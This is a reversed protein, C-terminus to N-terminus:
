CLHALEPFTNKFNTNRQQDLVTFYEKLDPLLHSHDEADMWDLIGEWRQWGYPNTDWFDDDTNFNDFLWMRLDIFQKRIQAKDEKSLVRLSLWTPIWVLHVGCLGGGVLQGTVTKSKNIKKFKSNVIWKIFDPVHKINLVQVAFAINVQINDPTTDLLKINNEIEKWDSPYRIYELRTGIGDLSFNIKVQKFKSWVEILEKSVLIGNTNYRLTIQKEFGRNVIEKIFKLHEKILLPEGGAFYIQKINPIQEFIEDWFEPREYWTNNFTVENWDLQRKVEESKLIPIIKKYEPVWMSSDHPSCMVCKLNCTNGLRLDLYQIKDPVEGDENTNSILEKLNTGEYFWQGTEWIRKSVIGKSEEEFCKVCSDPVSNSLMTKRVNKMFTNNFMESPLVKGFNVPEGTDTKILGVTHDGTDAGSANSTCCLRADGNPRTALHIWPLVCFSESGTLDKIQKQWQGIQTHEPQLWTVTKTSDM